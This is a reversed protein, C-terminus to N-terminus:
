EASEVPNHAIDLDTQGTPERDITKAQGVYYDVRHTKRCGLPSCEELSCGDDKGCVAKSLGSLKLKLTGSHLGKRLSVWVSFM